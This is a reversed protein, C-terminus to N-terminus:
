KLIYVASTWDSISLISGETSLAFGQVERFALPVVIHVDEVADALFEMMRDVFMTALQKAVTNPQEQIKTQAEVVALEDGALHHVLVKQDGEFVVIDRYYGQRQWIGRSEKVDNVFVGASAVKHSVMRRLHILGQLEKMPTVDCICFGIDNTIHQFELPIMNMLAVAMEVTRSVLPGAKTEEVTYPISYSQLDDEYSVEQVFPYYASFSVNKTGVRSWLSEDFFTQYSSGTSSVPVNNVLLAEHEYDIGVLGFPIDSSMTALGPDNYEVSGKTEMRARREPRITEGERTVGIDFGVKQQQPSRASPVDDMKMCSTISLVATLVLIHANTKM